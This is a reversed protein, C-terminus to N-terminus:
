LLPVIFWEKNQEDPIQFCLHGMLTKFIQNFEWMPEVIREKLEKLETICQSESKPKKFKSILFTKISNLLKPTAGQVFKMYWSLAHDRLTTSFQVRKVAKDTINKISWMAEYLFWHKEPDESGDGRFTPLRMEDAM